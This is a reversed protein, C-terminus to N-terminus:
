QAHRRTSACIPLSILNCMELYITMTQSQFNDCVMPVPGWWILVYLIKYSCSWHMVHNACLWVSKVLQIQFSVMVKKLANSTTEAISKVGEIRASRALVVSIQHGSQTSTVAPTPHSDSHSALNSGRRVLCPCVEKFIWINERMNWM